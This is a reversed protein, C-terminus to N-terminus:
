EGSVEFFQISMCYVSNKDAMSELEQTLERRFDRIRTKAYSLGEKSTALMVASFDRSDVNNEKISGVAKGIVQRHFERIAENPVDQLTKHSDHSIEWVGEPTLNLLGLSTLRQFAEESQEITIGLKDSISQPNPQFGSLHFCELLAVHYWESIMKFADHNIEFYHDGRNRLRKEANERVQESRSHEVIVLDVFYDKIGAPLNLKEAINVARSESIGGKGSLMESMRSSNMGIDRAFARMSYRPNKKKRKEYERLIFSRYDIKKDSQM